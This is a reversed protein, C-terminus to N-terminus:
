LDAFAPIWKKKKRGNYEERAKSASMAKKYEITATGKSRGLQDFDIKNMVIPGFQSFLDMLDKHTINFDLNSVILRTKSYTPREDNQNRKPATRRIFKNEQQSPKEYQNQNKYKVV